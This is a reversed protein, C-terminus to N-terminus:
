LDLRDLLEIGEDPKRGQGETRDVDYTGSGDQNVTDDKCEVFGNRSEGDHTIVACFV